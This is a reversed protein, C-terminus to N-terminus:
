RPAFLFLAGSIVTPATKFTALSTVTVTTATLANWDKITRPYFSERRATTRCAPFSRRHM